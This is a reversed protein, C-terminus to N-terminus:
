CWFIFFFSGNESESYSHGSFISTHFVNIKIEITFSPERPCSTVALFDLTFRQQKEITSPPFGQSLFNM